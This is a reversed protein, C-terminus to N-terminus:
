GHAQLQSLFVTFIVDNLFLVKDFNTGNNSLEVLDQLTKNRLRALYPIRRLEKLGRPTDIWGPGHWQQTVIEDRHTTESLEVRHPVGRRELAQELQRLANKSDDWSGSEYVSVFINEPGFTDVLSIVANNWHSKLIPGNNWHIAAIYIREHPRPTRKTLAHEGNAINSHIRLADLINILLFVFVLIKPTRSRLLRRLYLLNASSLM